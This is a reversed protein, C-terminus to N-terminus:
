SFDQPSRGPKFGVALPILGLLFFVGSVTVGMMLAPSQVIAGVLGTLSAAGSLIFLFGALRLWGSSRTLLRGYIILPIGLIAYALLNIHAALSEPWQQVLQATLFQAATSYEAPVQLSAAYPLLSIQSVYAFLNMAAYAPVFAFAITAWVPDASRLWVYMGALLMTAFVTVLTANIYTLTFIMGRDHALALAREFTDVPGAAAMGVIMLVVWLITVVLTALSLSFLLNQKLSIEM